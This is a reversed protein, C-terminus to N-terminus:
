AWKSLFLDPITIMIIIFINTSISKINLHLFTLITLLFYSSSSTSSPPPLLLIMVMICIIFFFPLHNCLKLRVQWLGLILASAATEESEGGRWRKPQVDNLECKKSLAGNEDDILKGTNVMTLAIRWNVIFGYQM